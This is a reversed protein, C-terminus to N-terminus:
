VAESLAVRKKHRLHEGGAATTDRRGHAVGHEGPHSTQRVPRASRELGRRHQARVGFGPKELLDRWPVNFADVRTQVRTHQEGFTLAERETVLQCTLGHDLRQRRLTGSLDMPANQPRQSRTALMRVIGRPQGVMSFTCTIRLRHQGKSRRRSAASRLESRVALRGSLIGPRQAERVRSRGNIARRIVSSCTGAARSSRAARRTTPLTTTWGSPGDEDLGCWSTSRSDSPDTWGYRM